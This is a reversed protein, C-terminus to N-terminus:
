LGFAADQREAALDDVLTVFGHHFPDPLQQHPPCAKMTTAAMEKDSPFKVTNGLVPEPCVNVHLANTYSHSPAQTPKVWAAEDFVWRFATNEDFPTPYTEFQIQVCVNRVTENQMWM